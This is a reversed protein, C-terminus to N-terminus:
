GSVDISFALAITVGNALISLLVARRWTVEGFHGAGDHSASPANVNSCPPSCYVTWLPGSKASSKVM